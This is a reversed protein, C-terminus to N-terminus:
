RQDSSVAGILCNKAICSKLAVNHERNQPQVNLLIRFLILPPDTWYDAGRIAKDQLVARCVTKRFLTNMLSLDHQACLNLLRLENSNM